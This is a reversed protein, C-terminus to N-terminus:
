IFNKKKDFCDLWESLINEPFIEDKITVVINDLLIFLNDANKLLYIKHNNKPRKKKIKIIDDFIVFKGIKYIYFHITHKHTLKIQVKKKFVLVKLNLFLLKRPM